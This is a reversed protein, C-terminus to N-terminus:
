EEAKLLAAQEAHLEERKGKFGSPLLEDGQAIM